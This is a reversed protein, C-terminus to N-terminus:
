LTLLPKFSTERGWKWCLKELFINGKNHEILQGPKITQNWKSRSINPLIQMAITLWTTFDHIKLHVQKKRATKEVHGFLWSLFKFIKFHFLAKLIFYFANKMMKLPSEIYCIAYIIKSFSLGVSVPRLIKCQIALATWHSIEWFKKDVLSLM